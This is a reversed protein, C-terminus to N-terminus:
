DKSEKRQKIWKEVDSKKYRVVNRGGVEVIMFPPGKKRHRMTILSEAKYNLIEAAEKSTILGDESLYEKEESKRGISEKEIRLFDNRDFELIFEILRRIYGSKSNVDSKLIVSIAQKSIGFLEAVETQTM